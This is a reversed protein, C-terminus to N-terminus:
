FPLWGSAYPGGCALAIDRRVVREPLIESGGGGGLRVREGAFAVNLSVTGTDFTEFRIM